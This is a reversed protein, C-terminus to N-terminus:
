NKSVFGKNQCSVSVISWAFLMWSTLTNYMGGGAETMDRLYFVGNLQDQKDGEEKYTIYVVQIAGYTRSNLPAEKRHAPLKGKLSVANRKCRHKVYRVRCQTVM